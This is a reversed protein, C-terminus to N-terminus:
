TTYADALLAAWPDTAFKGQNAVSAYIFVYGAFILFLSLFRM